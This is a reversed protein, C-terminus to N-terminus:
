LLSTKIIDYWKCFGLGFTIVCFAAGIFFIIKIWYLEINNLFVEVKYSRTKWRKEIDCRPKQFLPANTCKAKVLCIDCPNKFIYPYLKRWLTELM